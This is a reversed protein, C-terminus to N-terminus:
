VFFIKKIFNINRITVTFLSMNEHFNSCNKYYSNSNITM